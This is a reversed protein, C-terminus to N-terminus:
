ISFIIPDLATPDPSQTTHNQVTLPHNRQRERDPLLQSDNGSADKAPPNEISFAILNAPDTGFAEQGIIRCPRREM